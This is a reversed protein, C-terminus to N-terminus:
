GDEQRYIKKPDFVQQAVFQLQVPAGDTPLGGVPVERYFCTRYGVHCSAEVQDDATARGLDVRLVLCDQDCDILMQRVQQTLGSSQGKKWLEGRSRSYYHVEGTEITRTLAVQNMYAFMLVEGTEAHTTICAILGDQDFKPSLEHGIEVQSSSTQPAFISHM